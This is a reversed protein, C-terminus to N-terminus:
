YLLSIGVKRKPKGVCVSVKERVTMRVADGHRVAVGCSSAAVGDHSALLYILEEQTTGAGAGAM